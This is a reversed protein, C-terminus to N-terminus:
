QSVEISQAANGSRLPLFKVTASKNTQEALEAFKAKKGAVKIRTGGTVKFNYSVGGSGKLVVLKKEAVVMSITGSITEAKVAPAAKKAAAAEQAVALSAGFFALVFVVLLTFLMKKM